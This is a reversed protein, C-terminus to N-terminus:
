RGVLGLREIITDLMDTMATMVRSSAGYAYQFKMMNSMEEDMSVGMIAQRQNDISFTLVNQSTYNNVAENGKNGVSMVLSQYFGDISQVDGINGLLVANRLDSIALAVTNDGTASDRSAAIESLNALHPNVMINGMQMPYNPDIPVFFDEGPHSNAGLTMGSKHLNNVERIVANIILNLSRKVDPISNDTDTVGGYICNRLSESVVDDMTDADVEAGSMFRDGTATALIGLQGKNDIDSVVLTHINENKLRGALATMNETPDLGNNSLLVIQRTANKWGSVEDIGGVSGIISELAATCKGAATPATPVVTAFSIGEIEDKFESVSSSGDPGLDFYTTSLPPTSTSNFTTYGLRVSIGRDKYYKVISDINALLNERQAATDDLNFAFVLDIKDSFNGNDLSIKNGTVEGRSELLGKLEGGKIPLLTKGGHIAPAIFLSGATNQVATITEADTKSVLFYGGVTIDVMGDQMEYARCDILKSLKDIDLNRQDRLDNAHDGNIEMQCIKLNLKAIDSTLKNIEDIKDRIELDLDTQAKDLQSGLHNIYETLMEGRQKVTARVTLNGPDKSLEQWSDWFQNLTSQLGNETGSFTEGMISQIDFYTNQKAEWYGLTKSENRYVNDLFIHRIQRVEQIDAGLGLQYTVMDQYSATAGIAQQRSYGPTNVNSINHGTVDLGRESVFLGSRAIELGGFGVGM